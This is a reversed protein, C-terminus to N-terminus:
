EDKATMNGEIYIRVMSNSANSRITISKKFSGPFRNKGNYSVKVEGTKGPEVPTKTFDAVTCGCSPFAQQIVLSENGTNTFKFVCSVIKEEPFTGFNHSTKEFKIVAQAMLATCGWLLSLCVTTLLRKMM